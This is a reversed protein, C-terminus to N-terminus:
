ATLEEKSNEEPMKEIAEAENPEVNETMSKGGYALGFHFETEVSSGQGNLGAVLEDIMVLLKELVRDKVEPIQEQAQTLKPAVEVLEESRILRLSSTSVKTTASGAGNISGNRVAEQLYIGAIDAASTGPLASNTSLSLGNLMGASNMSATVAKLGNDAAELMQDIFSKTQEEGQQVSNEAQGLYSDLSSIGYSQNGHLAKVFQSTAQHFRDLITSGFSSIQSSTRIFISFRYAASSHVEQEGALVTAGEAANKGADISTDSASEADEGLKHSVLTPNLETAQVCASCVKKENTDNEVAKNIAEDFGKESPSASVPKQYRHDYMRAVVQTVPM